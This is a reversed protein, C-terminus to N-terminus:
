TVFRLAEEPGIRGIAGSSYSAVDVAGNEDLIVNVPHYTGRRDLPYAGMGDVVQARDIEALVPFELGLRESMATVDEVSDVTAGIVRVNSAKFADYVFNYDAM